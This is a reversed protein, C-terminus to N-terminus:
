LKTAVYVYQDSWELSRNLVSQRRQRIHSRSANSCLPWPRWCSRLLVGAEEWRRRCNQEHLCVCTGQYGHCNQTATTDGHHPQSHLPPGGTNTHILANMTAPASGRGYVRTNRHTLHLLLAAPTKTTITSPQERPVWLNRCHPGRLCSDSSAGM